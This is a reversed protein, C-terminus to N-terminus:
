RVHSKKESKFFVLIACTLLFLSGVITFIV